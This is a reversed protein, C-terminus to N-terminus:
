ADLLALSVLASAAGARGDRRPHCHALAGRAACLCRCGRRFHGVINADVCHWRMTRRVDLGQSSTAPIQQVRERRRIRRTRTGGLLVLCLRKQAQERARVRAPMTTSIELRPHRARAIRRPNATSILKSSPHALRM